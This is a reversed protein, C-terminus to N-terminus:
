PRLTPGQMRNLTTAMASGVQELARDLLRRRPASDVRRTAGIVSRAVSEPAGYADALWREFVECGTSIHGADISSPNGARRM